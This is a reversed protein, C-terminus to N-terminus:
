VAHNGIENIYKVNKTYYLNSVNAIIIDTIICFITAVDMITLFVELTLILQVLNTESPKM